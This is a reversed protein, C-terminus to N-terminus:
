PRKFGGGGKLQGKGAGDRRDQKKKQVIKPRTLGEQNRVTHLAVELSWSLFLSRSHSDNEAARGCRDSSEPEM